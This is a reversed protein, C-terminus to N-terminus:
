SPCSSRDQFGAAVRVTRRLRHVATTAHAFLGADEEDREFPGDVRVRDGSRSPLAEGFLCEHRTPRLELLSSGVKACCPAPEQDSGVADRDCEQCRNRSTASGVQRGDAGDERAGVQVEARPRVRRLCAVKASRGGVDKVREQSGVVLLELHCPAGGLDVIRSLSRRNVRRNREGGELGAVGDEAEGDLPGEPHIPLSDALRIRLRDAPPPRRWPTFPRASPSCVPSM